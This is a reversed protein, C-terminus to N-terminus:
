VDSNTWIVMMMSNNQQVLLIMNMMNNSRLSEIQRTPLTLYEVNVEGLKRHDDWPVLADTQPNTEM